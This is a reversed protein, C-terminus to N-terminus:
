ELRVTLTAPKGNRLLRAVFTSQGQLRDALDFLSAESVIPIGNVSQIIDGNRLGVERAISIGGLSDSTIGLVNGNTDYAMYPGASLVLTVPNIESWERALQAESVVVVEGGAVSKSQSAATTTTSSHSSTSPPQRDAPKPAGNSEVRVNIVVREGYRQVDFRLVTAPGADRITEIVDDKSLPRDGNVSTIVDGDELGMWRMVSTDANARPRVAVLPIQGSLQASVLCPELGNALLPLQEHSLMRMIM